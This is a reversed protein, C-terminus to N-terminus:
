PKASTAQGRKRGHLVVAPASITVTLLFTIFSLSVFEDHEMVFFFFDVKVEKSFIIDAVSLYLWEYATMLVLGLNLSAFVATILWVFFTYKKPKNAFKKSAWYAFSLPVFVMSLIFLLVVIKKLTRDSKKSNEKTKDKDSDPSNVGGKIAGTILTHKSAFDYCKKALKKINRELSRSDHVM